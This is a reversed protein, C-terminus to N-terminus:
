LCLKSSFTGLPGTYDFIIKKEKNSLKSSNKFWEMLLTDLINEIDSACILVCGRDSERYLPNKDIEIIKDPDFENLEERM